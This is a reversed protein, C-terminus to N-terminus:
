VVEAFGAPHPIPSRLLSQWANELADLARDTASAAYGMPLRIFRELAGNLGFRPGATILLGHSRAALALQSSLPAGINAWLALGGPVSAVRWDPMRAAVGELLYLRGARLQERRLRLIREYDQLAHAAVLQEYLPTGLDGAQRAHAFQAIRSRDARIWGVRLGGWVTKGLSGITIIEASSRAPAYHAFPAYRERRDIDLEGTTEDSIVITGNRSALEITRQRVEAPMSAGTPNHFDPMLYALAPSNRAFAQELGDVDWGQDTVSVPILRSGAERLAEYAHPYSPMEVLSRDGRALLTRAVLSIAHQAGITVMIQEPDTPLGREAYRDAIARRLEPLGVPDYGTSRLATPLDDAAGALYEDITAVAPLTAKTFDIFGAETVEDFGSASGPLRAITGSGRMSEIYGAERLERYAATVMTRSVDLAAALDREAPLRTDAPIRGDIILLRIRDSLALYSPGAAVNRWEGLLGIMRRAGLVQDAM